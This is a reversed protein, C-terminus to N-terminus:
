KLGLPSSLLSLGEADHDRRRVDGATQMHAMGELLGDHVGHDAVLAHLAFVGQPLRTSVVGTDGGLHHNLALNGSFLTFGTVVVTAVREDVFDPLPLRFGAAGDGALHAAQAVGHVPLALAEGHVFAEGVRDFFDEHAQVFFVQNVAAFAQHVPIRFQAGRNGVQFHFVAVLM